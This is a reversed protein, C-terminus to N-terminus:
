NSLQPGTFTKEWHDKESDTVAVKIEGRPVLGFGIVPNSALSIDTELDFVKQDGATVAITQIYRAPTYTRSVQNMQMGNFNPHRVMLTAQTPKDPVAGAAFKLRMEGMGAMAEEDSMGMPASCGGAAKVFKVTEFLSGDATEAIAHVNTYANIRVRLNIERPDAAPGFTFHAAVPSPNDDIILYLGKVPEAGALPGSFTITMPVLAADEARQPADIAIAGEASQTQRDGFVARSLDQWRAEREAASDGAAARVTPAAALAAAIVALSLAGRFAFSTRM